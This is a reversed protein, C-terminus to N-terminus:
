KKGKLLTIVGYFRHHTYDDLSSSYDDETLEGTAGEFRGTGGLVIIKGGWYDYVHDPHHDLKGEMVSGGPFFLNLVDGNAAMLESTGSSYTMYSGDVNPDPPGGACFNFTLSVKGMHTANGKADVITRGMYGEGVCETDEMDFSILEGLLTAEFPVTVDHPQASKLEVEDQLLQEENECGAFLGIFISILFLLKFTKM